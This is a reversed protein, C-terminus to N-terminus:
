LNWCKRNAQSPNDTADTAGSLTSVNGGDVVLRLYRCSADRAQVGSAVAIVEYGTASASEVSFEYGRGAVARDAGVEALSGYRGNGSRWREQAQQVQIMSVLAETRRLKHVVSSYGPYAISALLGSVSTAIMMEVLTFGTNRRRATPHM